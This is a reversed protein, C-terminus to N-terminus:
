LYLHNLNCEAGAGKKEALAALVERLYSGIGRLEPPISEDFFHFYLGPEVALVMGERMTSGQYASYSSSACDHVDLGLHHGM